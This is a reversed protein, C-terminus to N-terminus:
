TIVTSTLSGSTSRSVATSRIYDYRNILLSRM